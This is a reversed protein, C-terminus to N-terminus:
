AGPIKARLSHWMANRLRTDIERIREHTRGSGANCCDIRLDLVYDVCNYRRKDSQIGHTQTCALEVTLLPLETIAANLFCSTFPTDAM